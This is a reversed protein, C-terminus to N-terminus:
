FIRPLFTDQLSHPGPSAPRAASANVTPEAVAADPDATRVYPGVRSQPPVCIRDSSGAGDRALTPEPAAESVLALMALRGESV